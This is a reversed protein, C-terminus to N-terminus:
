QSDSDDDDGSEEADSVHGARKLVIRNGGLNAFEDDDEDESTCEMAGSDEKKTNATPKKPAASKKETTVEPVKVAKKEGATSQDKGKTPKDKKKKAGNSENHKQNDAAARDALEVLNPDIWANGAQLLKLVDPAMPALERTLFSYVCAAPKGPNKSKAADYNRAARGCRHVYQTDLQLISFSCAV